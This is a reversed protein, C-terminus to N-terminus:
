PVLVLDGFLSADKGGSMGRTWQVAGRFGHGDDDNAIYTFGLINGAALPLGLRSNPLLVEYYTWGETHRVAARAEEVRGTRGGAGGYWCWVTPGEPTQAVGYELVGADYGIRSSPSATLGLQVSDGQWLGAGTHTQVFSQDQVAVAVALGEASWRVAARARGLDSAASTFEADRWESLEGDLRVTPLAPQARQVPVVTAPIQAMSAHPGTIRLTAPRASPKASVDYAVELRSDVSGPVWRRERERLSWGAAAEVGLPSRADLGRLSTAALSLSSTEGARLRLREADFRLLVRAADSTLAVPAGYAVRGGYTFRLLAWADFDAGVPCAFPVSAGPPVTLRARWTPTADWLVHPLIWAAEGQIPGATRNEIRAQLIGGPGVISSVNLVEVPPTAGAHVEPDVWFSATVCGGPHEAALTVISTGARHVPRAEVLVLAEVYSQPKVVVHPTDFTVALTPACQARLALRAIESRHNNAIRLRVGGVGAVLQVDRPEPVLSLVGNDAVGEGRNELWYASVPDELAPELAPANPDRPAPRMALLVTEYAHPEMPVRIVDRETRLRSGREELPTSLWAQNASRRLRLRAEVRRGTGNWLRVAVTAPTPPKGSQPARWRARDFGAPKLAALLVGAPEVSMWSLTDPAQSDAPWERGRMSLPHNLEQGIRPIEAQRWDGDHPVLSYEFRHSGHMTEFAAGDPLRRAPADIWVGAPWGTCSRLLNLGLTGDPSAHVSVSGRNVLAVGFHATVDPNEVLSAPAAVVIRHEDEIQQLWAELRADDAAVWLPLDLAGTELYVVGPRPMAIGLAPLIRDTNGVVVRFDPVNSDFRLDGYRRMRHETITTTVGARVLAEALRNAQRLSATTGDVVIEGVGLARRHVVRDGDLIELTCTTGLGAWTHCAQDLTWANEATAVDRAFPRGLVAAATQHVPKAGPLDLPFEVRLLQNVGRWDLIETVFDIRRVDYPLECTQRKTFDPYAVEVTVRNRSQVSRPELPLLRARVGTGPRREGTPALHWPGEGHGPLNEHEPLVVLDAGPGRLLERGTKKDRLSVLTGGRELDIVVALHTNELFVRSGELRPAPDAVHLGSPVGPLWGIGARRFGVAPVHDRTTALSNWAIAGAPAFRSLYAIAAERVSTALDLADRYAYLIDVYVQDSMSGTVGDHHATFLLQRWARDLARDPYAAGELSAVTAWIEADRLTTEADRNATKLDAFSVACGTYIPNMDRTIVPLALDRRKVEARVAEFFATPTSLAARPSVYTANWHRVIDGLDEIPRVFDSHMPLMVQHTLAPRKLDEFMRGVADEWRATLTTRESAGGSAGAGRLHLPGYAYGYHGTMYHALVARGDPAMWLFESPFNVESRPAGWQHFPGRAFAGATIGNRQMLSPFSPDHGFVDCQWFTRGDGPLIERQFISGYIANRVAAEASVLTTSLENYTGGTLAVRGQRVGEVLESTREPRAELFTKLYPLQHLAVTYDPDQRLKRLYEEVLVIGPGVETGLRTGTEAYNAQTNWWVPDFHFGPVFHLVWDADPRPVQVPMETARAGDQVHVVIQIAAERAVLSVPIRLVEGAVNRPLPADFVVEGSARTVSVRAPSALARVLEIELVVAPASVPGRLLSTPRVRVVEDSAHGAGAALLAICAMWKM